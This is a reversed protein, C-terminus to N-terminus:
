NRMKCNVDSHAQSGSWFEHMVALVKQTLNFRLDIIENTDLHSVTKYHNSNYCVKVFPWNKFLIFVHFSRWYNRMAHSVFNWNAILPLKLEPMSRNTFTTLFDIVSSQSKSNECNFSLDVLNSDPLAERSISLQRNPGAQDRQNEYYNEAVKDLEWM